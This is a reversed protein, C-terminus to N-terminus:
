ACRRRSSTPSATTTTSSPRPAPTTTCRTSPSTAGTADEQQNGFVNDRLVRGHEDTDASEADQSARFTSVEITEPGSMVHVIKFRRGIIRSRRFAARVEEPTASTAVDYDKPPQGILLDRVAGGVVFAKFGKEQLVACVKRAAPSLQERRIGHRDVPILAPEHRAATAPRKFVKRLLKRIM